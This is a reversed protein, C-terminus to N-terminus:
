IVGADDRAQPGDKWRSDRGYDRDANTKIRRVDAASEPPAFNGNAEIQLRVRGPYNRGYDCIQRTPRYGNRNRPQSPRQSARSAGPFDTTTHAGGGM